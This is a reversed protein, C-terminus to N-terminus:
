GGPVVGRVQLAEGVHKCVAALQEAGALTVSTAAAGPTGPAASSWAKLRAAWGPLPAATPATAAQARATAARSGGTRPAAAPAAAPPAMGGPPMMGAGGLAAALASFLDGGQPVSCETMAFTQVDSSPKCYPRVRLQRM